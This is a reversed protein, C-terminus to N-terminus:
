LYMNLYEMTRTDELESINDTVLKSDYNTDKDLIARILGSPVDTEDSDGYSVSPSMAMCNSESNKM